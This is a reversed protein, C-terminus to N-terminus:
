LQRVSVEGTYVREKCGDDRRVLLSYDDLIDLAIADYGEKGFPLVRVREGLLFSSARYDRLLEEHPECRFFEELAAIALDEIKIHLDSAEEISTAIDSIDDSIANKYVNIGMGCVISISKGDPSSEGEALIGCIKKRRDGVRAFLDNVWKIETDVGSVRKIARSLKVACEPTITAIDPYRRDFLLVSMYLGAGGRSVFHRGRRGRGKTQESAIFVATTREGGLRLYEMARENTSDTVEYCFLKAEPNIKKLSDTLYKENLM